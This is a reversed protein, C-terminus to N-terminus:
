LKIKMECLFFCFFCTKFTVCHYPCKFETWAYITIGIVFVLQEISKYKFMINELELIEERKKNYVRNIVDVAIYGLKKILNQM